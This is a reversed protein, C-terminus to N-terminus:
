RSRNIVFRAVARLLGAQEGFIDLHEIAQEVLLNAQLRAREVGLAAVLTSKGAKADKGVHKGLTAPDGEIDLLDDAIQFALGLNQAYGKLAHRKIPSARGLIAGAEASYCILAGTKMNQLRTIAAVDMDRHEAELDIMQGGVMGHFGSAQALCRVLEIRVRPDAHTAEHSLIDFALTLLADGALIATAEDFKIHASPQGRRMDDNDMAPLDDHILSYTHVCEVACATRLVCDQAVGFLEASAMVLFPRLRKGGALASYRMAEALRAEIGAAEPLLRSLKRELAESAQALAAEVDVPPVIANM